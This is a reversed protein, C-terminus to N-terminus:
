RANTTEILLYPRGYPIDDGDADMRAFAQGAKVPTGEPVHWTSLVGPGANRLTVNRDAFRLVAIKTNAQIFTHERVLKEALVFGAELEPFKLDYFFPM